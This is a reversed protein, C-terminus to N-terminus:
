FAYRIVLEVGNTVIGDIDKEPMKFTSALPDDPKTIISSQRARIKDTMFLRYQVIVSTNSSVKCALGAKFQWALATGRLKPSYEITPAVDNLPPTEVDIILFNNARTARSDFIAFGLGAGVYPTFCSCNKFDFYSNAMFSYINTITSTKKLPNETDNAFVSGTAPNIEQWDFFGSIVREINQYLFEGEWRWRSRVQYGFALSLDYGTRFRNQWNVNPLRFVSIGLSSGGLIVLSSDVQFNSERNSFVGGGGASIYLSKCDFFNCSPDAKIFCPFFLAIAALFVKKKM